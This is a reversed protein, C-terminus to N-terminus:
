AAADLPPLIPERSQSDTRYQESAQRRRPPHGLPRGSARLRSGRAAPQDGPPFGGDEVGSAALATPSSLQCSARGPPGARRPLSKAAPSISMGVAPQHPPRRRLRLSRELVDAGATLPLAATLCLGALAPLGGDRGSSTPHSGAVGKKGEQDHRRSATLKTAMSRPSLLTGRQEEERHTEHEHGDGSHEEDM